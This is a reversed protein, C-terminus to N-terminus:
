IHFQECQSHSLSLEQEHCKRSMLLLQTKNVKLRLNNDNAWNVVHELDESLGNNLDDEIKCKLSFTTAYQKM